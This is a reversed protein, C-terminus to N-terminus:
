AVSNDGESEQSLIDTLSSSIGTLTSQIAALKKKDNESVKSHGPEDADLDAIDEQTDTIGELLDGMEEHVSKLTGFIGDWGIIDEDDENELEM